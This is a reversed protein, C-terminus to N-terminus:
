LSDHIFWACYVESLLMLRSVIVKPKQVSSTIYLRGRGECSKKGAVKVNVLFSDTACGLMLCFISFGRWRGRCAFFKEVLFSECHAVLETLREGGAELYDWTYTIQLMLLIGSIYHM